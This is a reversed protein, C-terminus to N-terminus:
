KTPEHVEDISLVVGRVEKKTHDLPTVRVRCTFAKGRRNVAELVSESYTKGDRLFTRIPEKLQEVPLGCDLNLLPEGVVEEPRLGWLEECRESWIIIKFQRDIVIVANRLSALISELFSNAVNLEKTITRLENNTTELEENTSQLEENMTELEENTSQLEENTTELEENTSQLEENTTELEEHASQLEENTTELEQNAQQLEDYVQHYTTVDNFTISTGVSIQETVSLPAVEVDFFQERGDGLKRQVKNARVPTHEEQAKAILTRLEIPRYSVELDQLPRGLDAYGLHFLSRARQNALVLIGDIDVVIQPVLSADFSLERMRPHSDGNEAGSSQSNALALIRDRSTIKPVRRFVRNKMEIPTFLETHSLLMEAKGLVLLGDDKLAYHFRQLIRTQTEANLYMLTNRCFLLDLNSIPADQVLDHRGFIVSRRLDPRFALKTNTQVFYRERLDHPVTHMVQLGYTAMRAEGVAEDDADTAYIKVQNLFKEEGLAECLLMALTYAEEGSACGAVWVRIQSGNRARVVEPIVSDRVYDWVQEDRFFSTVNILIMNFLQVFEDPHVELYDMYEVFDTVLSIEMRKQVRRMLSSRKYGTFDFGRTRKLYDLLAEFKQEHEVAAEPM